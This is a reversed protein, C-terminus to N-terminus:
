GRALPRRRGVPTVAVQMHEIAWPGGGTTAKKLQVAAHTGRLRPRHLVNGGAVLSASYKVSGDILAEARDEVRVFVDVPAGDESVDIVLEQLLGQMAARAISMFVDIYSDFSNGFDDSASSDFKLIKGQASGVLMAARQPNNAPYGVSSYPAVAANFSFEWFAGTRNDYYWYRSTGGATNTIYIHTAEDRPDYGVSIQNEEPNIDRFEDPLRDLSVEESSSYGEGFGIKQLGKKSLYYIGVDAVAWADASLIGNEHTVNEFRGGAGPDGNLYWMSDECGFLLYGLQFPALAVIPQGIEDANTSTSAIAAGADAQATDYDFPDGQRSMIWNSPNAKSGAWVLRGRWSIVLRYGIPTFGKTARFVEIRPTTSTSNPPTFVKPAAEVRFSAAGAGPAGDLVLSTSSISVIPYAGAITGGATNSLVVVHTNESIGLNSFDAVSASTLTNKDSAIRGDDGAALPDSYDAIFVKDAYSAMQVSKAGASIPADATTIEEDNEDTIAEGKEDTIAEGFSVMRGSQDEYHLQPNTTGAIALVLTRHDTNTTVEETEVCFEDAIAAGAPIAM